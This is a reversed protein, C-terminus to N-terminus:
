RNRAEKLATGGRAQRLLGALTANDPELKLGREFEVAADARQGAQLLATGSLYYLATNAPGIRIATRFDRAAGRFDGRKQRELGRTQYDVWSTLQPDVAGQRADSLIRGFEKERYPVGLAAFKRRDAEHLKEARAFLAKAGAQDGRALAEGGARAAAVDDGCNAGEADAMVKGVIQKVLDADVPQARMYAIAGERSSAIWREVNGPNLSIGFDDPPVHANDHYGLIRDVIMFGTEAKYHSPEWFTHM